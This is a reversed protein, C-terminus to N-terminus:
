KKVQAKDIQALYSETEQHLKAIEDELAKVKRQYKLRTVTENLAVFTLKDSLTRDRFKADYAELMHNINEAAIRMLQETEPNPANLHYEQGSIKLTISQGM